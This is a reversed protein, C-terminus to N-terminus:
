QNDVNQKLATRVTAPISAFFNYGTATEISNVSTRYTKWDSNITNTNPTNIAIVRTTSTIRSIDNNGNPLVVIIKWVNSPVTVNGNNITNTVGGNSGTGGTGYSGAIVYVENGASVLGRTYSELGEWTQQNNNPAQPIMNTMLFTSSNATTSSTRDGSPCNHGRDFGSGSYSSSQVQYWGSPLAADARFDNTRSTSGIDSSQIHWSVWNPTGRDRNYSITYYTQDMLYNNPSTINAVAANPNGLLLHSDDGATPGGGPNTGGGTGTSISINDINIRNTGGSVKRVSLRINGTNSIQFSATQLTSSSSTITSGVQTYSSGGNTSIWLQWTSSADSGYKAHDIKVTTSDNASINFNMSLSGTNRIRASQSGSKVDGALNGILADDMTWSGSGLTVAASAYAGKSGTEFGETLLQTSETQVSSAKQNSILEPQPQSEKKCSALVLCLMGLVYFHKMFNKM